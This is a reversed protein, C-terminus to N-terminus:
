LNRPCKTRLSSPRSLPLRLPLITRSYLRSWKALNRRSSSRGQRLGLITEKCMMRITTRLPWTIEMKEEDNRLDPLLINQMTRHEMREHPMRSDRLSHKGMRAAIRASRDVINRSKRQLWGIKGHGVKSSPFRESSLTM